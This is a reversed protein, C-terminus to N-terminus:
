DTPSSKKVEEKFDIKSIKLPPGKMVTITKARHERQIQELIMAQQKMSTPTDSGGFPNDLEKMQATQARAQKELTYLELPSISLPDSGARHLQPHIRQYFLLTPKILDTTCSKVVSTWDVFDRIGVDDYITWRNSKFPM